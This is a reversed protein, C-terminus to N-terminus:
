NWTTLAAFRASSERSCASLLFAYVQLNDWSQVLADVAAAQPDAMPSFYVQLRHNLSTAFLDVTVPWLRFLDRCVEEHLTWESVLVQGCRSLSDALVNLRGPVFQPLLRLDSAECLCLTAQAVENLTSSRTGGEKRLYSLASTNDTFLSVTQGKLIPLCGQIALFIALLERHNISYLSVDHSWWGFLQDFGLSAGWGTDSADTYLVLDPRPRCGRLSPASRVVVSSGEPLLRGLLGVGDSVRSSPLGLSPTTAVADATQLRSHPYVLIVDGRPPLALSQSPARALLLIRRHSLAGQSDQGSDPFGEFTYVSPDDGSLGVAPCASSLEQLLQDSHRPRCLTSSPLGEGSHDGVPFLWPGALRGFVSSHPLWCSAHHLLGSGHCAHLCTARIIFWLMPGSVSVGPLRYLLASVESVAPPCASPPIRGPPRSFYALRWIPPIPTSVTGDGYSFPVPSCVPQPVILRYGTALWWHGKPHRFPSQLLGSWIFRTRHCGQFTFGESCGCSRYGQHVIPYLEPPSDADFLSTSSLSVPHCIRLASGSGGLPRCGFVGLGGLVSIFLGRGQCALSM